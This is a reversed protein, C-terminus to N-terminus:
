KQPHFPITLNQQQAQPFYPYIPIFIPRHQFQFPNIGQEVHLQANQYFPALNQNWPPQNQDM